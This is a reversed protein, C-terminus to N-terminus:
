RRQCPQYKGGYTPDEVFSIAKVDSIRVDMKANSTTLRAYNNKENVLVLVGAFAWDIELHLKIYKNLYDKLNGQM